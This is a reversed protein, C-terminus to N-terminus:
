VCFFFMMERPAPSNASLRNQCSKGELPKGAKPPTFWGPAPLLRGPRVLSMTFM